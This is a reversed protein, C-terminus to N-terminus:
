ARFSHFIKGHIIKKLIHNKKINEPSKGIPCGPTNRTRSLISINKWKVRVFIGGGEGPISGRDTTAGMIESILVFEIHIDYVISDVDTLPEIDQKLSPM